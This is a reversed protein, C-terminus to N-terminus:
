LKRIEAESLGSAVAIESISLKKLKLLSKAMERAKNLAGAATGRAIGAAIGAKEGQRFATEKEYLLDTMGDVQRLFLEDEYHKLSVDKSLKKCFDEDFFQKHSAREYIIDGFFRLMEARQSREKETEPIHADNALFKEVEIFYFDLKPYYPEGNKTLNVHHFYTEPELEFQNCTLISLVYIHPLEYSESKKVQNTIVRSTYYLLRDMFFDSDTQQVEILIPEDNQNTGIIDFITTKNNLIGPLEEREFHYDKIRDRGEFGMMANLFKILRTPDHENVMLIKFIADSFPYVNKFRARFKALNSPDEKIAKLLAYYQSRNM